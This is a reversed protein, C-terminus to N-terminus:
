NTFARDFAEGTQFDPFQQRLAAAAADAETWNGQAARTLARAYLEEPSAPALTAIERHNLDALRAITPSVDTAIMGGLNRRYWGLLREVVDSDAAAQGPGAQLGTPLTELNLASLVTQRKEPALAAANAATVDALLARLGALRSVSMDPDGLIETALKSAEEVNGSRLATAYDLLVRAPGGQERERRLREDESLQQIIRELYAYESTASERIGPADGIAGLNSITRQALRLRSIEASQIATQVERSIASAVARRYEDVLGELQERAAPPWRMSRAEAISSWAEDLRGATIERKIVTLTDAIRSEVLRSLGDLGEQIPRDLDRRQSKLFSLREYAGEWDGEGALQAAQMLPRVGRPPTAGWIFLGIALLLLGASAGVFVRLWKRAPRDSVVVDLRGLYELAKKQVDSSELITMWTSRARDMDDMKAYITGLVLRAQTFSSDLDLANNLESAAEAFRGREAHELAVNYHHRSKNVLLRLMSIDKGCHYCQDRDERNVTNCYPCRM